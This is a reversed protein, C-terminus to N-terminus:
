TKGVCCMWRIMQMEAREFKIGVDTLLTRTGNGYVISSMVCSAYVRGKMEQPFSHNDSFPFHERLKM